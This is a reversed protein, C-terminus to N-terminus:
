RRYMETERLTEDLLSEDRPLEDRGPAMMILLVKNRSPLPMSQVAPQYDRMRAIVRVDYELMGAGFEDINMEFWGERDTVVTGMDKRNLSDPDLVASIRVGPMPIETFRPDKADTVIVASLPGEVVKGRLKYSGCGSLPVILLLMGLLCGFVPIRPNMLVREM